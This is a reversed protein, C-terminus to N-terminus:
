SLARGAIPGHLLRQWSDRPNALHKWLRLAARLGHDTLRLERGTVRRFQAAYQTTRLSNLHSSATISQRHLRYGSWIHDCSGFRCGALAMDFFLEGDWAVRNRVNFGQVCEFARRRFFTSPQILIAGQYLAKTPTIRDSYTRRLIRDRPDLVCAHGSVVDKEPHQQLYRVAASVAAPHLVDDSNLFAFIEGTAAAFGKNLGHAPGCDPEFITRALRSQYREIISRSGDISGPDVVIYEIYPHDQSLVSLLARELFEAQNFSITVISVLM